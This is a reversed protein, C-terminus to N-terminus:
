HHRSQAFKEWSQIASNERPGGVITCGYSDVNTLRRLAREVYEKEGRGLSRYLSILAPIDRGDIYLYLGQLTAYRVSSTKTITLSDILIEGCRRHKNREWWDTWQSLASQSFLGGSFGFDMGTLVQLHNFAGQRIWEDKDRLLTLDREVAQVFWEDPSRDRNAEWWSSWAAQIKKRADVGQNLYGFNQLTAEQLWGCAVESLDSGSDVLDTFRRVLCSPRFGRMLHFLQRKSEESGSKLIRIVAETAVEDQHIQFLAAVAQVQVEFAPDDLLRILTTKAKPTSIEMMGFTATARNTENADRSLTELAKLADEGDTCLALLAVDRKMGSGKRVTEILEPYAQKGLGVLGAIDHSRLLKETATRPVVPTAERGEVILGTSVDFVYKEDLHTTIRLQGKADDFSVDRKWEFHSVSHPLSLPDAVLQDIRYQRFLKGDEYFAVALEDSSSPWPGMRVLHHGDSSVYVDHAYWDVTWLPELPNEKLYLGSRPYKKRLEPDQRAFRSTPLLVMVLKGDPSERFYDSPPAASDASACSGDALRVVVSLVLAVTRASHNTM